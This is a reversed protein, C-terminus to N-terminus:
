FMGIFIAGIIIFTIGFIKYRTIKEKLFIKSIILSWIYTISTLPLVMSYPRFKLVYINLLAGVVYLAGGLYLFPCKILAILTDTATAKKFYFGGLSGFLTLVLLLGIFISNSM